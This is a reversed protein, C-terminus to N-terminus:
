QYAKLTNTRSIVQAREVSVVVLHQRGILSPKGTVERNGAIAIVDGVQLGSLAIAAFHEIPAYLAILGTSGDNAALEALAQIPEDPHSRQCMEIVTCIRHFDPNLRRLFEGNAYRNGAM